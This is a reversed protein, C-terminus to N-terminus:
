SGYLCARLRDAYDSGDLRAIAARLGSEDIWGQRFAIEEPSAVLEGHLSTLTAVHNAADLLSRPTGADTWFSARSILRINLRGQDLYRNLVDVIEFEGRSSPQLQSCFDWVDPPFVYLGPVIWPSKPVDPKEVLSVLRGSPDIEAVAYRSPDPVRVGFICASDGSYVQSQGLGFETGHFVNDGLVLTVPGNGVKSRARALGDAVGLPEDQQVYSINVGLHDGFGLLETIPGLDNPGTVVILDRIGSLMLTALPYYLLPKDFVPLLHKNIVASAPGLRTGRGGALLVGKMNEDYQRRM